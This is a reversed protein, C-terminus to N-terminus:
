APERLLGINVVFIDKNADDRGIKAADSILWASAYYYGNITFGHAKVLLDRCEAIKTYGADYDKAKVRIQVTPEAMDNWIASQTGGTDYITVTDHSIAPETGYFIGWQASAGLTGLSEQDFFAAIDGAPTTM